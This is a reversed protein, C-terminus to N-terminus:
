YKYKNIFRNVDKNDNYMEPVVFSMKCTMHVWLSECVYLVFDNKGLITLNTCLIFM